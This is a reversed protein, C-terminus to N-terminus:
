CAQDKILDEAVTLSECVILGHCKGGALIKCVRTCPVKRRDGGEFVTAGWSGNEM